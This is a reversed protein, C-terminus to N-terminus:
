RSAGCPPTRSSAGVHLDEEAPLDALPSLGLHLSIKVGMEPVMRGSANVALVHADVVPLTGPVWPITEMDGFTVVLGGVENSSPYAAFFGVGALYLGGGQVTVETEGASATSPLL